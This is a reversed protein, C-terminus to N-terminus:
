SFKLCKNVDWVLRDTVICSTSRLCSGIPGCPTELVGSERGGGTERGREREGGGGVTKQRQGGEGAGGEGERCEGWM